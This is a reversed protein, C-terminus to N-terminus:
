TGIRHIYDEITLPFTFNIVYKVDPIDLGRAAVDTAVLLLKKGSRFAGLAETRDRQNKDGHIGVADWGARNLSMEVRSAEKKYLVFVLIRENSARHKRPNGCFKQLLNKLKQDKQFGDDLVEVHQTVRHNATLVDSGVTVKVPDNVFEEALKRVANPWTATYMLSQRKEKAPLHSAIARIEPMFGLDLMRDAEDLVFFLVQSLNLGSNEVLDRLRGPTAVVVDVGKKLSALQPYKPVGGYVCLSALGCKKCCDEAVDQIQMALERTPSLVLMRPKFPSAKDSRSVLTSLAPVLFALTKGSGTEAVGVIDRKRFAIPWCQAQIPTPKQFGYGDLIKMVKPDIHPRAQDFRQWVEVDCSSGGLVINNDKRWKECEANGGSESVNTTSTTSLKKKKKPSGAAKEAEMSMSRTRRRTGAEVSAAGEKAEKLTKVVQKAKKWAKRARKIEKKTADEKAKVEKLEKRLRKVEKKAKKLDSSM